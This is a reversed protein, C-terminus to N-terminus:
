EFRRECKGKKTLYGNTQRLVEFKELLALKELLTQIKQIENIEGNFFNLIDEDLFEEMEPTVEKRFYKTKM